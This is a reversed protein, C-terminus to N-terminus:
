TYLEWAKVMYQSGNNSKYATDCIVVDNPFMIMQGNKTWRKPDSQIKYCYDCFVRGEYEVLYDRDDCM